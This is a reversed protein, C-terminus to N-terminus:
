RLQTPRHHVMLFVGVLTAGLAPAIDGSVITSVIGVLATGEALAWIVIGTTQVKSEDPSRGLRGRMFGAGFVAVFGFGLWAWRFLSHDLTPEGGERGLTLFLAVSLFLLTGGLMAGHIVKLPM